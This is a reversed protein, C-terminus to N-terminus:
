YLRTVCRMYIRRKQSTSENLGYSFFVVPYRSDTLPVVRRGEEQALRAERARRRAQGQVRALRIEVPDPVPPHGGGLAADFANEVDSM